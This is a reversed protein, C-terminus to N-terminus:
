PEFVRIRYFKFHNTIEDAVAASFNSASILPRNAPLDLPARSVPPLLNTAFQVEFGRNAIQPFSIQAAASNANIGIKWVSASSKADTGLLYEMFNVSRDGDFDDLAGSNASNTAGFTAIQWDAFTQYNTLSAIWATLLAASNTDPVNSALPPMRLPGNQSIRTLLVSHSADNPVVVRNSADGLNNHM